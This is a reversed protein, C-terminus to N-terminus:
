KSDQPIENGLFDLEKDLYYLGNLYQLYYTEAVGSTNNVLKGYRNYRKVTSILGSSSRTYKYEAVGTEDEILKKNAGFFSTKIIEGKDNWTFAKKHYGEPGIVLINNKNFYYNKTVYCQDNLTQRNYSVGNYNNTKKGNKDFYAYGTYVKRDNYFYKIISIGLDNTTPKNNKDYFKESINNNFRNYTYVTKCAGEILKNNTNYALIISDSGFANPTFKKRFYGDLLEPKMNKDYNTREILQNKDNYRYVNHTVNQSANALENSANYYTTKTKNNHIDYYWKIIAVDKDFAILGGLSDYTAEETQNGQKDYKYRFEVVGKKTKAYNNNFDLYVLKEVIGKKDIHKKQIAVGSDDNFNSNYVDVNHVYIISDNPYTYKSAGWKDENFSLVYGPYYKAYFLYRGKNDYKHVEMHYDEIDLIPTNHKNFVRSSTKNDHLNYTYTYISVGDKNPAIQNDQNYNISKKLNGREDYEFKLNYSFLHKAFEGSQDFEKYRIIQNLTDYELSVKSVFDTDNVPKGHRNFFAINITRGLSDYTRKKHYVGLKNKIRKLNKNYYSISVSGSVEIKAHTQYINNLSIRENKSNFYFTLIENEKIHRKTICYKLETNLTNNENFYKIEILHKNKTITTIATNFDGGNELAGDKFFCITVENGKKTVKYSEGHKTHEEYIPLSCLIDDNLTRYIKKYYVANGKDYNQYSLIDQNQYYATQRMLDDIKMEWYRQKETNTNHSTISDYEKQMVDKDLTYKNHLSDLRNKTLRNKGIKVIDKRLLRAHYETINFHYQEHILVQDNLMSDTLKESQSPDMYAYVKSNAWSIINPCEIESYITAVYDNELETTESFNNWSINTTSWILEITSKYKSKEITGTIIIAM